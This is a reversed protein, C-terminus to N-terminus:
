LIKRISPYEKFPVNPQREVTEKAKLFGAQSRLFNLRELFNRYLMKLGSTGSSNQLLMSIHHAPPTHYVLLASSLRLMIIVFGGNHIVHHVVHFVCSITLQCVKRYKAVMEREPNYNFM